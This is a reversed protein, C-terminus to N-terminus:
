NHAHFMAVKKFIVWGFGDSIARNGGIKYAWHHIIYNVVINVITPSLPDGQTVGSTACFYIRYYGREQAKLRNSNWYNRMLKIIRDGVRYYEM